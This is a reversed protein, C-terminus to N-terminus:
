ADDAEAALRIKIDTVTEAVPIVVVEWRGSESPEIAVRSDRVLEGSPTKWGLVEPRPDEPALSGGGWLVVKVASEVVVRRGSVVDFAQVLVDQDDEREWRPSGVTSIPSKAGGSGTGSETPGAGDGAAPALLSGLTRSMGALGGAHGTSMAVDDSAPSAHRQMARKVDDLARRVVGRDAGELPLVSWADHTPPEAAAFSHDRSDDAVFVGTYWVNSDSMPPGEEYAVVLRPGRLLCTHRIGARFGLEAGVDDIAPPPAFASEIHLRGIVHGNYTSTAGEGLRRYVNAFQRLVRHEDPALVPIEEGACSVGFRMPPIANAGPIMKPWLHWLISNAAWEMAERPAREGYQPAVVAITTGTQDGDFTPLHLRLATHDAEPGVVPDVVQDDTRIGWWHRGTFQRGDRTFGGGLAIGVMRSELSGDDLQCRTYVLVTWARSGNFFAAKGFGYTGGGLEQDRPDGVNLVFSVYDHAVGDVVRDARTVGGLGCTGRDSVALIELDDSALVERLPLDSGHPANAGLKANWAARAEGQPRLLDMRFVVSASARDIAADWSNQAAERVLITLPDLEPRGLQNRIGEGKIAGLPPVPQSFWEAM